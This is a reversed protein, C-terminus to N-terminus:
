RRKKSEDNEWHTVFNYAHFYIVDQDPVEKQAHRICKDIMIPDGSSEVVIGRNYLIKAKANKLGEYKEKGDKKDNEM